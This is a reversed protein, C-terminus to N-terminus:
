APTLTLGHTPILLRSKEDTVQGVIKADVGGRILQDVIAEASDSVILAFGMGMNFTEYAEQIPVGASLLAEFVPLVNLPYAIEFGVSPNLRMLNRWGGGTIHAMGTIVSAYADLLELIPKVYLRTPTLLEAQQEPSTLLKRALSLGNSHIGSSALGIVTQGPMIQEGTILRSPLVDGVAFGALDFDDNHYVDPMEATEGGVLLMGAEDCGRVIGEIIPLGAELSLKGTAYYDLFLTPTAGVCLLDNACMAVLDLGLTDYRGLAQAVLVKTGVGDTTLALYKDTSFPYVAAYGGAAKLMQQHGARRAMPKLREVFADGLKVDVGAAAYTTLDSM